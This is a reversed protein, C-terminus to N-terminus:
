SARDEARNIVSVEINILESIVFVEDFLRKNLSKDATSDTLLPM